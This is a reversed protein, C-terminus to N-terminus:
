RCRLHNKGDIEYIKKNQEIVNETNKIIEKNYM